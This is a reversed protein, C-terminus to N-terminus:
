NFMSIMKQAQRKIQGPEDLNSLKGFEKLLEGAHKPNTARIKEIEEEIHTEGSLEGTKAIETLIEKASPGGPNDPVEEDPRPSSCGCGVLTMLILLTRLMAM